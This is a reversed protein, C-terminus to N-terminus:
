NGSRMNAVAMLWRQKGVIFEGVGEQKKQTLMGSKIEIVQLYLINDLVIFELFAFKRKM